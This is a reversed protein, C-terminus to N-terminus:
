SRGRMALPVHRQDQRLPKPEDRVLVEEATAREVKATNKAAKKWWNLIRRASTSKSM